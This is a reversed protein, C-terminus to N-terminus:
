QTTTTTTTVTAPPDNDKAEATTQLDVEVGGPGAIHIGKITGLLTILVLAFLALIGIAMYGLWDIQKTLLAPDSGFGKWMIWILWCVLPYLAIGSGIISLRQLHDPRACLMDITQRLWSFFATFPKM